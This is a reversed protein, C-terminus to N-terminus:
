EGKSLKPSNVADFSTLMLRTDKGTRSRLTMFGGLTETSDMVGEAACGDGVEMTPEKWMRPNLGMEPHSPDHAQWVAVKSVPSQLEQMATEIKTTVSKWHEHEAHAADILITMPYEPSDFSGHRVLSLGRWVMSEEDMISMAKPAIASEWVSLVDEDAEIPMLRPYAYERIEVGIPEDDVQLEQLKQVLRVAIPRWQNRDCHISKISLKVLRNPLHSSRTECMYWTVFRTQSEEFDRFARVGEPGGLLDCMQVYTCRGRIGSPLVALGPWGVRFPEEVIKADIEEDSSVRSTSSSTM